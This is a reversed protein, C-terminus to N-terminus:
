EAIGRPAKVVTTSGRQRRAALVCAEDARVLRSDAGARQGERAGATVLSNAEMAGCCLRAAARWGQAAGGSGFHSAWGSTATGRSRNPTSIGMPIARTGTSASEQAAQPVSGPILRSAPLCLALGAAAGRYVFDDNGPSGFAPLTISIGAPVSVESFIDLPGIMSDLSTLDFSEFQWQNQDTYRFRGEVVGRAWERRNEADRGIVFFAVRGKGTAGPVATPVSAGMMAKASDDFTAAKLKFRVDEIEAFHQLFGLWGKLFGERSIRDPAPSAGTSSALM